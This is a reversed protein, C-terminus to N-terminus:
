IKEISEESNTEVSELDEIPQAIPDTEHFLKNYLKHTFPQILATVKLSMYGLFVVLPHMWGSLATVVLAVIFIVYRTLYGAFIKKAAAKEPLDLARDLTFYMHFVAFCALLVGFWLGLSFSAVYKPFFCGPIQCILAFFLIGTYMELLTRNKSRLMELFATM